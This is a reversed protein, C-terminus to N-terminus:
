KKMMESVDENIFSELQISSILVEWVQYKITHLAGRQIVVGGRTTM